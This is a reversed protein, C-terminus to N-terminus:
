EYFYIFLYFKLGDNLGGSFLPLCCSIRFSGCDLDSVERQAEMTEEAPPLHPILFLANTKM